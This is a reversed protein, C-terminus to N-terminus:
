YAGKPSIMVKVTRWMIMLDSMLSWNEVYRLDLRVSEDWTLDSRGSVQWLGTIGPKIYLRRFVRGDYATVESPLPPRPGVISMDGILVNWFQPLEDVSFKRLVRGVRTIRPDSKMKFLPGSGENAALLAALEAEATTKMSRFKVMGFTKGDRGVRVQRFFIPGRSDIAIALAIIPLAVGIVLLALSSMVIDFGRKVMHRGGEFTPIQVHILPLGEIQQLSIRPGAVDVLRSSLVLESATGELQWSLRRIFDPDEDTRGAVIITDAALVNAVQAVTNLTGVVGYHHSDVVVDGKDDDVTTGVVLHGHLPDKRLTRIVYEVDARRGVVVARSVYHGFKRKGILWRRWAWRGALLGVTGAPLAILLQMRLGSSQIIVFAIALVGFALGTAHAVRKYETVGSGMIRTDRTQLAALAILWLAATLLFVRGYVRPDELLLEPAIIFGQIVATAFTVTLVIAFDTLRLRLRYRREWLQRRELAPQRRPTVQVRVDADGARPASVPTFRPLTAAIAPAIRSSPASNDIATM